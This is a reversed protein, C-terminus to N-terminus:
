IPAYTTRFGGKVVLERLGPVDDIKVTKIMHVPFTTTITTHSACSIIGDVDGEDSMLVLQGDATVVFYCFQIKGDDHSEICKIDKENTVDFWVNKIQAHEHKAGNVDNVMQGDKYGNVTVERKKDREVFPRLEIDTDEVLSLIMLTGHYNWIRYQIHAFGDYFEYSKTGCIIQSVFQGLTPNVSAM